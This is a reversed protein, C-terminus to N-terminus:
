QKEISHKGPGIFILSFFVIGSEIAHSATQLTDGKGLHMAAAVVMTFLLLICAPVFFFGFILCISGFVMAFAAMFGWFVPAFDVGVYQMAAGVKEWKEPGGLLKPLGHYMFMAGLGLRMILLGLDRHKSLSKLLM